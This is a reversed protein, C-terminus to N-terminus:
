EKVFDAASASAMTSAVENRDEDAAAATIKANEVVLADRQAELNAIEIDVSYIAEDYATVQSSQGVYVLGILGVLLGACLAYSIRGLMKTNPQNRVMNRNRVWTDSSSGSRGQPSFSGRSSYTRYAPMCFLETKTKIGCEQEVCKKGRLSGLGPPLQVVLSFRGAGVLFTLINKVCEAFVEGIKLTGGTLLPM